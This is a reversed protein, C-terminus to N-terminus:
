NHRKIDCEQRATLTKQCNQIYIILFAGAAHGSLVQLSQGAIMRTSILLSKPRVPQSAIEQTYPPM